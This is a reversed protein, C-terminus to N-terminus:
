RSVPPDASASAGPQMDSRVGVAGYAARMDDFWIDVTADLTDAIRGKWVDITADIAAQSDAVFRPRDIAERWENYGWDIGIGAILGVIGGLVSGGGPELATGVAAGEAVAGIRSSLGASLRAVLGSYVGALRARLLPGALKSGLVGGLGITVLGALADDRRASASIRPAKWRQADWDLRIKLAQAGEIAELHTTRRALFLQLRLDQNAVFRLYREHTRALIRGVQRRLIPDRFEPRLVFAEYHRMLYEAISNEVAEELTEANAGVLDDIAASVAEKLLVYSRQWSFFWDAFRAVAENRDAFTTAFAADLDAALERKVAERERDLRILQANLFRETDGRDAYVRHLRGEVDRVVLIRDSDRIQRRIGTSVVSDDEHVPLAHATQQQYSRWYTTGFKVGLFGLMALALASALIAFAGRRRAAGRAGRRWWRGKLAAAGAVGGGGAVDRVAEERCTRVPRSVM